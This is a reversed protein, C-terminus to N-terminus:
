FVIFKGSSCIVEMKLTCPVPYLSITNMAAEKMSNKGQSIRRTQLHFHRIGGFIQQNEVANYGLVV